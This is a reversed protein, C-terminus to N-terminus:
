DGYRGSVKRYERKMSNRKHYDIMKITIEHYGGDWSKSSRKKKLYRERCEATEGWFGGGGPRGDVRTARKEGREPQRESSAQNLRPTM